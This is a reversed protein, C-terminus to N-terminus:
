VLRKKHQLSSKRFHRLFHTLKCYTLKTFKMIAQSLCSFSFVSLVRLLILVGYMPCSMWIWQCYHLPFPIVNRGKLHSAKIGIKGQPDPNSYQCTCVTQKDYMAVLSLWHVLGCFGLLHTFVECAFFIDEYNRLIKSLPM